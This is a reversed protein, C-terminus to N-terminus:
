LVRDLVRCDNTSGRDVSVAALYFCSWNGCVPVFLKRTRRQRVYRCYRVCSLRTKMSTTRNQDAICYYCSLLCLGRLQRLWKKFLCSCNKKFNNVSIHPVPCAGMGAGQGRPKTDAVLPCLSVISRCTPVVAFNACGSRKAPPVFLEEEREKRFYSPCSLGGKKVNGIWSSKFKCCLSVSLPVLPFHARGRLLCSRSTRVVAFTSLVM